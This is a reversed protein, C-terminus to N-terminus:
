VFWRKRAIAGVLGTGFLILSAPEPTPSAGPGAELASGVLGSASSGAQSVLVIAGGGALPLSGLVTGAAGATSAGPAALKAQSPASTFAVPALQQVIGSGSAGSTSEEAGNVTVNVSQSVSVAQAIPIATLSVGGFGSHGAEDADMQRAGHDDGDWHHGAALVISDAAAAAPIALAIVTAAAAVWRTRRM